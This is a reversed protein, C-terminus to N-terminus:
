QSIPYFIPKTIDQPFTWYVMETYYDRIGAVRYVGNNDKSISFVEDPIKKDIRDVNVGNCAHVGVSGMTLISRDFPVASFTSESGLETNIQQWVFPAVQNNTYAM